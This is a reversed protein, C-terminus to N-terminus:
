YLLPKVINFVSTFFWLRWFLICQRKWTKSTCTCYNMSEKEGGWGGVGGELLFFNYGLHVTWTLLKCFNHIRVYGKCSVFYKVCVSKVSEDVAQVLSYSIHYTIIEWVLEEIRWWIEIYCCIVTCNVWLPVSLKTEFHVLV